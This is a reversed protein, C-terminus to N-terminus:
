SKHQVMNLAQTLNYKSGSLSPFIFLLAIVMMAATNAMIMLMAMRTQAPNPMAPIMLPSYVNM